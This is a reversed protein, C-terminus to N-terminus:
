TQSLGRPDARCHSRRVPRIGDGTGCTRRPGCLMGVRIFPRRDRSGVVRTRRAAHTSTRRRIGELLAGLSLPATAGRLGDVGSKGGSLAGTQHFLPIRLAQRLLRGPKEDLLQEFEALASPYRQKRILGMAHRIRELSRHPPLDEASQRTRTADDHRGLRELLSSRLLLASRSPEDTRTELVALAAAPGAEEAVMDVDALDLFLRESDWAPDGAVTLERAERLADRAASVPNDVHPMVLLTALLAEDRRADYDRPPARLRWISRRSAERAHDLWGAVGTSHDALAPEAEVIRWAVRFRSEALDPEGQDLAQKGAAISNSVEQRLGVLRQENRHNAVAAMSLIVGLGLTLLATAAAM